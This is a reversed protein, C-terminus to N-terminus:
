TATKMIVLQQSHAHAQRLHPRVREPNVSLARLITSDSAGGEPGYLDTQRTLGEVDSLCSAGAIM